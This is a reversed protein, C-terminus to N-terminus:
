LDIYTETPSQDGVNEFSNDFTEPNETMLHRRQLTLNDHRRRNFLKQVCVNCNYEYWLGYLLCIVSEVFVTSICGYIFYDKEESMIM